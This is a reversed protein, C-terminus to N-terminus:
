SFLSGIDKITKACERCIKFEEGLFNFKKPIQWVNKNCIACAFGMGDMFQILHWVLFFMVLSAVVAILFCMVTERPKVM